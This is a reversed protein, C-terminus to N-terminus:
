EKRFEKQSYSTHVLPAYNESPRAALISNHLPNSLPADAQCHATQRGMLVDHTAVNMRIPMGGGNLCGGPCILFEILHYAKKGMREVMEPFAAGGLVRAVRLKKDGITVVAEDIVGDTESEGRLRKFEIPALAQGTLRESVTNLIATVTGGRYVADSTTFDNDPHKGALQQYAIGKRKMMKTLERVTLAADVHSVGDLSLEPRSQEYKKATCTSVTVVKADPRELLDHKLLGGSLIHPSKVTALHALYSPQHQEFYSVTAACTSTFLPLDRDQELREILQNATEIAHLDEGLDINTVTDFGLLELAEYTKGITDALPTDIPYGFEEAIAMGAQKDLQVVVHGDQERLFTLVRESHDTEYLTGTPCTKVCQGCHICGTEDFSLGIVPSVVPNLGDDDHFKLVKATVVDQCVAVCRKCLVCKSQDQMIATGEILDEKRAIGPGFEEFEIDHEKLLDYFECMGDKPCRWCDFRHRSALLALSAERSDIVKDSDTEIVMGSQIETNCASVLDQEGEVEVVCIRCFGIENIEELFCLTPIEIGLENAAQLITTGKKVKVQEGNITIKAM